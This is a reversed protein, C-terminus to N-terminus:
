TKFVRILVCTPVTIEPMSRLLSDRTFISVDIELCRFSKSHWTFNGNMTKQVKGGPVTPTGLTM